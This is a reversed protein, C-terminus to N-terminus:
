ALSHVEAEYEYQISGNGLSEACHCMTLENSRAVTIRIPNTTIEYPDLTGAPMKTGDIAIPAVNPRM